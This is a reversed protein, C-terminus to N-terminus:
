QESIDNPYCTLMGYFYLSTWVLTNHKILSFGEYLPVSTVMDTLYKARFTVTSSHIM